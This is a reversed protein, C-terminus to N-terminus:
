AANRLRRRLVALSALSVLLLSSPEPVVVFDAANMALLRYGSTM